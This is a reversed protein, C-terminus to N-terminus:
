PGVKRERERDRKRCSEYYPKPKIQREKAIERETDRERERQGTYRTADCKCDVYTADCGSPARGSSFPSEVRREGM